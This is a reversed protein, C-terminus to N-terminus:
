RNRASCAWATEHHCQHTCQVSDVIYKGWSTPHNHLNDMCTGHQKVFALHILTKIFAWGCSIKQCWITHRFAVDECPIGSICSCCIQWRLSSSRASMSWLWTTACKHPTFIQKCKHQNGLWKTSATACLHHLTIYRCIMRWDVQKRAFPALVQATRAPTKTCNQLTMCM